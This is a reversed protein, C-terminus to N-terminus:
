RNSTVVLARRDQLPVLGHLPLLIVLPSHTKPVHTVKLSVPLKHTQVNHNLSTSAENNAACSSLLMHARDRFFM